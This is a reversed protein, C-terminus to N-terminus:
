QQLYLKTLAWRDTKGDVRQVPFATTAEDQRLEEEEVSDINSVSFLLNGPQVDSHVIDNRHLFALGHLAHTLIKQAMWKPHREVLVLMRLNNEIKKFHWQELNHPPKSYLLPPSSYVPSM